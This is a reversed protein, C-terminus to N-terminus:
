SKCASDEGDDLVGSVNISGLTDLTSELVIPMSLVPPVLISYVVVGAPGGVIIGPPRTNSSAFPYLLPNFRSENPRKNPSASSTEDSSAGISGLM